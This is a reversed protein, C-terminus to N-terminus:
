EGFKRTITNGQMQKFKIVSEESKAAGGHKISQGNKLRQQLVGSPTSHKWHTKWEALYANVLMPNDHIVIVNEANKNAANNTYNFSGTEVTTTDAVIFKNHQEAHVSDLRVAIGADVLIKVSSYSQSSQMADAVVEVAVGRRQAALLAQTVPKSTFSFAAVLLEQKSNNITQLVLALASGNTSFGVEISPSALATQSLLFVVILILAKM